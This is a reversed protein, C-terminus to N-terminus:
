INRETKRNIKILVRFVFPFLKGPVIPGGGHIFQSLPPAQIKPAVLFTGVILAGITGLKMYSSLYDRPCLLM